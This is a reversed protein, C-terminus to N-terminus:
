ALAQILEELSSENLTKWVPIELSLCAKQTTKGWAIIKASTPIANVKLFAEVNSPSTFVYVDQPEIKQELLTTEYCRIVEKQEDPILNAITEKSHKALPFLVRRNGLWAAFDLAVQQPNGPTKGIFHINSSPLKIHNATSQGITAFEFSNSLNINGSIFYRYSRPSSIFVVDFRRKIEFNIPLFNLLSQATLQWNKERCFDQLINNEHLNTSIFLRIKM